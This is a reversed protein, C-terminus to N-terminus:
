AVTQEIKERAATAIFSSRTLGSAKAADDIAELLGTRELALLFVSHVARHCSCLFTM